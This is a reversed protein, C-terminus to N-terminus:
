EYFRIVDEIVDLYPTIRDNWYPVDPQQRSDRLEELLFDIFSPDQTPGGGGGGQRGGPSYLDSRALRYAASIWAYGAEFAAPDPNERLAMLVGLLSQRQAQTAFQDLQEERHRIDNEYLKTWERFPMHFYDRQETRGGARALDDALVELDDALDAAAYRARSVAADTDVPMQALNQALRQAPSIESLARAIQANAEGASLAEVIRSLEDTARQAAERVAAADVTDAELAARVADIAEAARAAEDAWSNLWMGAAADFQQLANMARERSAEDARQELSLAALDRTAVLLEDDSTLPEADEAVGTWRDKLAVVQKLWSEEFIFKLTNLEASLRGLVEATAGGAAVDRLTNRARVTRSAFRSYAEAWEQRLADIRETDEAQGPVLNVRASLMALSSTATAEAEGLAESARKAAAAADQGEAGMASSLAEIAAQAVTNAEISRELLATVAEPTFREGAAKGAAVLAQRAGDPLPASALDITTRGLTEGAGAINLALLQDSAERWRASGAGADAGAAEMSLIALSVAVEDAPLDADILQLLRWQRALATLTPADAGAADGGVVEAGRQWGPQRAFDAPHQGLADLMVIRAVRRGIPTFPDNDLMRQEGSLWRRAAARWAADPADPTNDLATAVAASYQSQLAATAELADNHLAPLADRVLVIMGTLAGQLEDVARRRAALGGTTLFFAATNMEGAQSELAGADLTESTRALMLLDENTAQLADLYLKARRNIAALNPRTGDSRTQLEAKLRNAENRLGFYRANLNRGIRYSRLKPILDTTLTDVVPRMDTQGRLAPEAAIRLVGIIQRMARRDVFRETLDHELELLEFVSGLSKGEPLPANAGTIVDAVADWEFEELSRGTSLARDPGDESEPETLTAIARNIAGLAALRQREHEGRSFPVIRILVARSASEGGAADGARLQVLVTDGPVAGTEALDIQASLAISAQGAEEGLDVPNRQPQQEQVPSPNVVYTVDVTEVGLNDEIIAELPVIQPGVATFEAPPYRLTITPPLDESVGISVTPRDVNEFENNGHAAVVIVRYTVAKLPEFQFTGTNTNSDWDLEVPEGGEVPELRARVIPQDSSLSIAVASGRLVSIPELPDDVPAPDLETYDPPTVTVSLDTVSPQVVVDVDIPGAQANGTRLTFQMDDQLDSRTHLYTDRNIRSMYISTEEPPLDAVEPGTMQLQVRDASAGLLDMVPALWGPTQDDLTAQIVLEGGRGLTTTQGPTAKIEIFSPRALDAAPMYFRKVMLPWQYSAPVALLLGFGLLNAAIIGLRIAWPDRVLSAAQQSESFRVTAARLQEILRQGVPSPPTAAATGTGGARVSATAHHHALVDQLTVIREEATGQLAQELEYAIQRADPSRLVWFVLGVGIIGVAMAHTLVLFAIRVGDGLFVFRDIHTLVFIAIAYAIIAAYLIRLLSLLRKRYYFQQLRAAIPTPLHSVNFAM